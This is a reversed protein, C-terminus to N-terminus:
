QFSRAPGDPLTVRRKRGARKPPRRARTRAGREASGSSAIFKRGVVVAAVALSESWRGSGRGRNLRSYRPRQALGRDSTLGAQYWRCGQNRPCRAAPTALRVKRPVWTASIQWSGGPESCARNALAATEVPRGSRRMGSFRGRHIKGFHAPLGRELSCTFRAAGTSSWRNTRWASAFRPPCWRWTSVSLGPSPSRRIETKSTV